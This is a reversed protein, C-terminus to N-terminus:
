WHPGTCYCVSSQFNIELDCRCSSTRPGYHPRLPIACAAAQPEHYDEELGGVIQGVVAQGGSNQTHTHTAHTRAFWTPRNRFHTARTFIAHPYRTNKDYVDVNNCKSERFHLIRLYNRKIHLLIIFNLDSSAELRGM